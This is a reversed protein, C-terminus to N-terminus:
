SRENKWYGRSAFIVVMGMRSLLFCVRLSAQALDCLFCTAIEVHPGLLESGTPKTVMYDALASAKRGSKGKGWGWGACEGGIKNM